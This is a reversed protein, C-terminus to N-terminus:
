SRAPLPCPEADEEREPLATAEPPATRAARRAARCEARRERREARRQRLAQRVLRHHEAQQLQDQIHAKAMALPLLDM